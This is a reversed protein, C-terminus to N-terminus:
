LFVLKKDESLFAVLAPVGDGDWEIDKETDSAAPPEVQPAKEVISALAEERTAFGVTHHGKSRLRVPKGPEPPGPLPSEVFLIPHWRKDKTNHLMGFIPNLFFM